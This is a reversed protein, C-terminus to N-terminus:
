NQVYSHHSLQGYIIMRGALALSLSCNGNIGDWVLRKFRFSKKRNTNILNILFLSISNFTILRVAENLVRAKAEYIPDITGSPIATDFNLSEVESPPRHDNVNADKFDPETDHENSSTLDHNRIENAMEAEESTPLRQYKM